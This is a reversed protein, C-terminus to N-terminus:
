LVIAPSTTQSPSHGAEEASFHDMANCHQPGWGGPANKADGTDWIGHQHSRIGGSSSRRHHLLQLHQPLPTSSRCWAKMVPTRTPTLSAQRENSAEIFNAARDHMHQPAVRIPTASRLGQTSKAGSPRSLGARAGNGM